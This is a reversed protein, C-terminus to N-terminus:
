LLTEDDAEKDRLQVMDAGGELAARLLEEPSRGPPRAEIVLYLRAAQLRARRTQGLEGGEALSSLASSTAAHHEGAPAQGQPPAAPVLEAARQLQAEQPGEDISPGPRLLRRRRRPPARRPSVPHEGERAPQPARDDLGAQPLPR